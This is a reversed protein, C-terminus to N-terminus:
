ASGIVTLGINVTERLYTNAAHLVM